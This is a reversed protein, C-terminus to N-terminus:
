KYKRLIKIGDFLLVLIPVLNCFIISILRIMSFMINEPSQFSLAFSTLLTIFISGISLLLADIFYYYKVCEKCFYGEINLGTFKLPEIVNDSGKRFIHPNLEKSCGYCGVEPNYQFKEEGKSKPPSQNQNLNKHHIEYQFRILIRILNFVGLFIFGLFIFGNLDGELILYSYIGFLIQIGWGIVEWPFSFDVSFGRFKVNEANHLTQSLFKM